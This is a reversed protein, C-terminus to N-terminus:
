HQVGDGFAPKDHFRSFAGRLGHRTFLYALFGAAVVGFLTLGSYRDAVSMEGGVAGLVFVLALLGYAAIGLATEGRTFGSNFIANVVIHAVFGLVVAVTGAASLAWSDLLLGELFLGIGSFGLVSWICFVLVGRETDLTRSPDPM